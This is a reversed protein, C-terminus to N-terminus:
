SLRRGPGERLTPIGGAGPLQARQRAVVLNRYGLRERRRVVGERKEGGPGPEVPVFVGDEIIFRGPVREGAVKLRWVALGDATIGVEFAIGIPISARSGRLVRVAFPYEGSRVRGVTMEDACYFEMGGLIGMLVISPLLSLVPLVPDSRM